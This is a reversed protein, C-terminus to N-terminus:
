GSFTQFSIYENPSSEQGGSRTTKIEKHLEKRQKEEEVELNINFKKVLKKTNKNVDKIM